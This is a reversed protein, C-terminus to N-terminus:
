ENKYSIQSIDIKGKKGITLHAVLTLVASLILQIYYSLGRSLIIAPLIYNTGFISIFFISFLKESIGMGGPLPLMDVAISISAQLLIITLADSGRLGLALYVCYTITFLLFRQILTLIMVNVFIKKNKKLYNAVDSYLEMSNQLKELKKPTHKVIKIKALIKFGLEALKSALETHFVLILMVSVLAFNLFIGLYFIWVTGQMYNDILTRGFVAIGLGVIVLVMKYAITIIMMVLTSTPIPINKKKLYFIQMPQGGSASPTVCSFFFGVSSILFCLWRNLNIKISNMLYHIIMSESYIYAVVLIGGTSIYRLDSEKITNILKDLDEGYFLSYITIVFIAILFFTELIAKQYKKINMIVGLTM